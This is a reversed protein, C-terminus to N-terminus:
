IVLFHCCERPRSRPEPGLYKCGGPLRSGATPPPESHVPCSTFSPGKAGKSSQAPCVAMHQCHSRAFTADVKAHHVRSPASWGGCCTQLWGAGPHATGNLGKEKETRPSSQTATGAPPLPIVYGLCHCSLPSPNARHHLTTTERCFAFHMQGKPLSEPLNLIRDVRLNKLSDTHLMIKRSRTQVSIQSM